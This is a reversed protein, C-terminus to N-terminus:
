ASEYSVGAASISLYKLMVFAWYSTGTNTSYSDNLSAGLTTDLQIDIPNALPLGGEPTAKTLDFGSTWDEVQVAGKQMWAEYSAIVSDKFNHKTRKWQEYTSQASDTMPVSNLYTRCDSWTNARLNDFRAVYPIRRHVDQGIATPVQDRGIGHYWRLIAAGRPINLRAVRSFLKADLTSPGPDSLILLSQSPVRIGTTAIESKVSNVLDLNDQTALMLSVVYPNKQPYTSDSSSSCPVLKTLAAGDASNFKMGYRSIPYGSPTMFQTPVPAILTGPTSAGWASWTGTFFVSQEIMPPYTPYMDTQPAVNLVAKPIQFGRNNTEEFTLTLMLDSGFYLDQLIQCMTHPLLKKLPIDWNLVLGGISFSNPRGNQLLATAGTPAVYSTSSDTVYDRPFSWDGQAPVLSANDETTFHANHVGPQNACVLPGSAYVASQNDMQGPVACLEKTALPGRVKSENLFEERKALFPSIMAHVVDLRQIDVLVVGSSTQLRVARIPPIARVHNCYNAVYTYAESIRVRSEALNILYGAGFRFICDTTSSTSGFGVTGAGGEQWIQRYRYRSSATQNVRFDTAIPIQLGSPMGYANVM